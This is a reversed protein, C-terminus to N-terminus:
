LELRPQPKGDVEVSSSTATLRPDGNGAPHFCFEARSLPEFGLGDGRAKIYSEKLSWLRQFCTEMAVEGSAGGAADAGQQLQKSGCNSARLSAMTTVASPLSSSLGHIMAGVGVPTFMLSLGHIM